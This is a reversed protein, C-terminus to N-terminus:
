SLRNLISRDHPMIPHFTATTSVIAVLIALPPASQCARARSIHTQIEEFNFRQAAPGHVAAANDTGAGGRSTGSTQGEGPRRGTSAGLTQGGHSNDTGLPPALPSLAGSRGAMAPRPRGMRRRRPKPRVFPPADRGEFDRTTQGWPLPWPVRPTGVSPPKMPVKSPTNQTQPIPGDPYPKAHM